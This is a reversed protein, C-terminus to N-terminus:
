SSLRPSRPAVVVARPSSPGDITVPSSSARLHAPPRLDGRTRRGGTARPARVAIDRRFVLLTALATAAHLVVTFHLKAEAVVSDNMLAKALELHGSSSVPLFETLGQVLGLLASEWITM